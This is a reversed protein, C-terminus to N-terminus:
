RWYSHLSSPPSRRGRGFRSCDDGRRHTCPLSPSRHRRPAARGRAAAKALGRRLARRIPRRPCAPDDRREALAGDAGSLRGAGAGAFRASLRVRPKPRSASPFRGGRQRRLHPEGSARHRSHSRIGAALRPRRDRNRVPPWGSCDAAAAVRMTPVRTRAVGRTQKLEIPSIYVDGAALAITKQFYNQDGDHQLEAEPAARSAGGKRARWGCRRRDAM